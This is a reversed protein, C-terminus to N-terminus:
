QLSMGIQPLLTHIMKDVHGVQAELGHFKGDEGYLTYCSFTLSFEDDLDGYAHFLTTWQEEDNEIKLKVDHSQSVDGYGSFDFSEPKIVRNLLHRAPEVNGTNMRLTVDIAVMGMESGPMAGAIARTASAIWKQCLDPLYSWDPLDNFVMRFEEATIEIAANGGFLSISIRGDSLRRGDSVQVDEADFSYPPEFGEHLARLLEPRRATLDFLPARFSVEYEFNMSALRVPVTGGKVQRHETMVSAEAVGHACSEATRGALM